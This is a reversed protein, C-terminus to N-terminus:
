AASSARHRVRAFGIILSEVVVSNLVQRRSAGLTRLLAFERSRQAVTVAFTNFILFGGVLVAVGAFVLLGIKLFGLSDNIDGAQKEAEEKGTRM